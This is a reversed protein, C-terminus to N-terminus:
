KPKLPQGLAHEVKIRFILNNEWIIKHMDPNSPNEWIVALLSNFWFIHIVPNDVFSFPSQSYMHHHNILSYETKFYYKIKKFFKLSNENFFKTLLKKFFISYVM